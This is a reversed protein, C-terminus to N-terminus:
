RRCSDRICMQGRRPHTASYKYFAQMVATKRAPLYDGSVMKNYKFYQFQSDEEFVFGAGMMWALYVGLYYRRIGYELEPQANHQSAIHVGWMEKGFAKAAGRANPLILM